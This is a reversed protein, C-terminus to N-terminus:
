SSEQAIRISTDSLEKQVNDNQFEFGQDKYLSISYNILDSIKVKNLFKDKLTLPNQSLKQLIEKHNAFPITLILIDCIRAIEEYNGYKFIGKPYEKKLVESTLHAKEQNRSGIYIEFDNKGLRIALGKGENGTGGILGIKIKEVM